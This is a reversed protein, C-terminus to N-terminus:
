HQGLRPGGIRARADASRDVVAVLPAASATAHRVPAPTEAVAPQPAPASAAQELPAAPAAAVAPEAATAPEAIAPEHAVPATESAAPAPAYATAAASSADIAATHTEHVPTTVTASTEAAPPLTLAPAAVEAIHSDIAAPAPEPTKISEVYTPAAAQAVAEAERPRCPRHKSRRLRPPRRCQRFRYLSMPQM